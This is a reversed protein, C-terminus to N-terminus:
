KVVNIDNAIGPYSMIELTTTFNGDTINHTISKVVYYGSLYHKRINNNVKNFYIDNDKKKRLEYESVPV